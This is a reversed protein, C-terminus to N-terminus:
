NNLVFKVADAIVVTGTYNDQIKVNGTTGTAFTYNGLLVWTGGNIQQNVRNTVSGGSFAVVVPANTTRNAGQTHWEYIDYKGAVAITPTYKLNNAGTGPASLFRYDTGFKDTSATGTTWTGTVTAAPNDIVIDAIPAASAQATNVSSGNGNSSRVVYYYTTGTTLGTNTYTTVNAGLIAIDSYPGGSATGRGVIFNAENNSNDTWSLRISTSTWATAVLGSPAVPAGSPTTVSVQASNASLGASNTARVVYYYTTVSGVSTDSYTTVNAGRTVIDTYPGGSTLSRRVIFGTENSSNDAWSLDVQGSSIATASLGSPALPLGSQTTASAQASLASSGVGNVARVVYYYTTSSALGTNTYGTVNVATTFIDTYPGGSNTGRSVTFGTENNANDTWSLNIQSSSIATATLGSPAAPASGPSVFSFKIADAIVVNASDAFNDSVIVNGGTGSAFNFTGLLVWSGGTAQQNVTAGASGGNYSITYPAAVTRNGGAAYWSYVNYDGPTAINPTYQLYAAGTGGSKFRYDAGFKDTASSGTSWTGVVTAAPNDVTIDAIGTATVFTFDGSTATVDNINKSKVRYHYTTGLSLGTLNVSHSTVSNVNTKSTGYSATLGYNVVSDSSQDTTWTIKASNSTINIADVATIVPPITTDIGISNGGIATWMTATHLDSRWWSMGQYGGPSAPNASNKVADYFNDIETTTVGNWGQGVPAIPKIAGSWAPSLGNYFNNWETDLDAACQTSSIGFEHWYAQPMVADCLLGFTKYPFSSHLSIYMSPAHGLFRNPFVNKIGQLLNTAKTANSSLTEWEIEADIIYGDAGNNMINTAIAIEGNINVGYSRTYGFVKLGATHAANIVSTTLQQGATPFNTSGEGSKIVIFYMGQSKEYSMLSAVNTVSPVNGGLQNAATSLVYVWDGKQLNNPDIGNDLAKSTQTLSACLVLGLAISKSLRKLISNNM